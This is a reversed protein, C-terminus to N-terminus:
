KDRDAIVAYATITYALQHRNIGMINAVDTASNQNIASQVEVLNDHIYRLKHELSYGAIDIDRFTKLINM